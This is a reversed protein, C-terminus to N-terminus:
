QAVVPRERITVAQVFCPLKAAFIGSRQRRVVGPSSAVRGRLEAMNHHQETVYCFAKRGKTIPSVIERSRKAGMRLGRKGRCQDARLICRLGPGLDLPPLGVGPEDFGRAWGCDAAFRGYPPM